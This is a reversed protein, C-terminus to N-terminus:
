LHRTLFINQNFHFVFLLNYQQCNFEEVKTVFRFICQIDVLIKSILVIHFTDLYITILSLLSMICFTNNWFFFHVCFTKNKCLCFMNDSTYLCIINCGNHIYEQSYKLQWVLQVLHSMSFSLLTTWCACEFELEMKLYIVRAHRNWSKHISKCVFLRSLM